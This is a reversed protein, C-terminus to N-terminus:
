KKSLVGITDLSKKVIRDSIGERASRGHGATQEEDHNMMIQVDM